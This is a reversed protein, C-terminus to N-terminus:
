RTDPSGGPRHAEGRNRRRRDESECDRNELDVFRRGPTGAGATEVGSALDAGPDPLGRRSCYRRESTGRRSVSMAILLLHLYKASYIVSVLIMAGVGGWMRASIFVAVLSVISYGIGTMAVDRSRGVGQLIGGLAPSFALIPSVLLALEGIFGISAYESGLITRVIVPVFPMCTASLVMALGTGLLVAGVSRSTKGANQSVKPMLFQAAAVGVVLLPRQLKYAVSYLGAQYANSGRLVLPTEMERSQSTISAVWFLLSERMPYKFWRVPGGRHPWSLYIFFPLSLIVSGLLGWGYSGFADEHISLLGVQIVVSSVRRLLTFGAVQVEKGEAILLACLLESAREFSIWGAVFLIWLLPESGGITGIGVFIGIIGGFVALINGTRLASSLWYVESQMAVRHAMTSSKARSGYRLLIGSTGFDLLVAVFMSISVFSSIRGYRSPSMGRALLILSLAQAVSAVVRSLGFALFRKAINLSRDLREGWFRRLHM